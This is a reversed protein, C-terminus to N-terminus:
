SNETHHLKCFVDGMTMGFGPRDALFRSRALLSATSEERWLAASRFSLEKPIKARPPGGSLSATQHHAGSGEPSLDSLIVGPNATDVSLLSCM